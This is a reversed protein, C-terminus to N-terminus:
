GTGHVVDEFIAEQLASWAIRPAFLPGESVRRSWAPSTGQLGYPLETRARSGPRDPRKAGRASSVAIVRQRRGARPIARRDASCHDVCIGGGNGGTGSSASSGSATM